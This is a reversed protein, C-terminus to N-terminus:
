VHSSTHFASDFLMLVDRVSSSTSNGQLAVKADGVSRWKRRHLLAGSGRHSAATAASRPRPFVVRLARVGCGGSVSTM